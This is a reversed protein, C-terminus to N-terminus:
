HRDYYMFAFMACNTAVSLVVAATVFTSTSGAWQSQQQSVSTFVSPSGRMSRIKSPVLSPAYISATCDTPSLRNRNGFTPNYNISSFPGRRQKLVSGGDDDNGLSLGGLIGRIERTPTVGRDRLDSQLEVGAAIISQPSRPKTGLPSMPQTSLISHSDLTSCQSIPTSAVSFASMITNPRKRHKRKRPLFAVSLSTICLISAVILRILCVEPANDPMFHCGVMFIWAGIGLLDPFIVRAKSSHMGYSHLGLSVASIWKAKSSILPLLTLITSPYITHLDCIVVETDQQLEDFHASFFLLASVFTAVFCINASRGSNFFLKPTRGKLREKPASDDSSSSDFDAQLSDIKPTMMEQFRSRASFGSMVSPTGQSVGGPQYKAQDVLLKKNTFASCIKCLPYIRNLSDKYEKLEYSFNLDNTPEFRNIQAIILAVEKPARLCFQKNNAAQSKIRKNYDGNAKFGNYQDCHRCTFCNLCDYNVWTHKQCFWCEARYKFKPRIVTYLFYSVAAVVLLTGGTQTPDTPSFM